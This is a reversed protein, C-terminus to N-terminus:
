GDFLKGSALLRRGCSDSSMPWSLDDKVLPGSKRVHSPVAIQQLLNDTDEPRVVRRRKVTDLTCDTLAIAVRESAGCVLQFPRNRGKPSDGAATGSGFELVHTRQILEAIGWLCIRMEAFM